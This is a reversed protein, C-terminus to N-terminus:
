LAFKEVHIQKAPVGTRRVNTEILSVMVPPGCLFIDRDAIDPVLQRLHHPSLLDENGAVRHDGVVYRLDIRRTKALHELEQRFVLDEEHMARYILVIDAPMEEALARIPTIGIGGAILLVRDRRRTDDTFAGFPGEVIVGTGPEIEGIRRSFDGSGKVTIRLERSDPVASLSFPHAEWWSNRTLFRWLFFQGARAGLRDLNNGAMRISVIGTAEETVAVVRLRHRYATLSPRVIRFLVLLALTALYLATWWTAATKNTIFENGTPIQHIWALGIALYATLHVVYWFEYRLHRRVIVLSMGVILIMIATGVTAAVMGPYLALLTSIEAGLSIRDALTYGITIFVVHALVLGLAIKGNLRHWRTLRDFGAAREIWPLRSLLIVQILLLYAGILGTIRGISTLAAAISNISSIGGDVLWLWTIALGILTAIGWFLWAFIHRRPPRVSTAAGPREAIVRLVSM